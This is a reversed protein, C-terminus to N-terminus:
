PTVILYFLSILLLILSIIVPMFVIKFTTTNAEQGTIMMYFIAGFTWIFALPFVMFLAFVIM